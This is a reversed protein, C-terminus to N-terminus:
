GTLLHPLLVSANNLLVVTYMIILVAYLVTGSGKVRAEAIIAVTIVLLLIGIKLLMHLFPSSVIGTMMPNLEIGGLNLILQTTLIDLLFLGALIMSPLIIWVPVDTGSNTNKPVFIATMERSEQDGIGRV